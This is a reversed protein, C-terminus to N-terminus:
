QIKKRKFDSLIIISALWIGSTQPSTNGQRLLSPEVFMMIKEQTQAMQLISVQCPEM